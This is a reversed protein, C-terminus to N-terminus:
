ELPMGRLSYLAADAVPPAGGGGGGGGGAGPGGGAGAGPEPPPAAATNASSLRPASTVFPSRLTSFLSIVCLFGAKRAEEVTGLLVEGEKPLFGVLGALGWDSELLFGALNAKSPFLHTITRVTRETVNLILGSPLM